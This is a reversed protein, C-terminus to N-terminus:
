ESSFKEGWSRYDPDNDVLNRVRQVNRLKLEADARIVDLADDEEQRKNLDGAFQGFSRGLNTIGEAVARQGRAAVTTDAVAPQIRAIARGTRASPLPGLDERTPLKVM